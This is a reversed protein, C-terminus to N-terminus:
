NETGFKLIAKENLKYQIPDKEMKYLNIRSAECYEKVEKEFEPRAACGLLIASPRVMELLAGKENVDWKDGCAKQDRIIRWEQEYRWEPSKTTVSQICFKVLNNDTIGQQFSNLCIKRDSYIVPMPLLNLESFIRSLKYKVCIGRHNGTYHGWMLLSKYSESLCSVGMENIVAELNSKMLHVHHGLTKKIENWRTSGPTIGKGIASTKIEQEFIKEEDISIDCDFIDNFKCPASYWMKNEKVANLNKTDDRYYKYLYAPACCLYYYGIQKYAHEQEQAHGTFGTIIHAYLKNKWEDGSNIERFSDM